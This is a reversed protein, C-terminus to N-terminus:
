RSKDPANPDVIVCEVKTLVNVQVSPAEQLLGFHKALIALAPAKDYLKFKAVPGVTAFEKVAAAAHDPWESLPKATGDPNYLDSPRVFSMAALEQMIREATVELKGLTRKQGAQVAQAVDANTLLRSGQVKATRPSYGARIAAQTGNLDVLYEAVFRRQKPSLAM